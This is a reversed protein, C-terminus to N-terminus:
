STTRLMERLKNVTNWNRGTVPVGLAPEIKAVLM